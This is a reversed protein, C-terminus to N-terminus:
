STGSLRTAQRADMAETAYLVDLRFSSADNTGDYYPILRASTGQFREQTVDVAGPPNVLPVSILAFANENFVM